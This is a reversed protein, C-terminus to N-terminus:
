DARRPEAGPLQDVWKELVIQLVTTVGEVIRVRDDASLESGGIGSLQRQLVSLSSRSWRVLDPNDRALRFYSDYEDRTSRVAGREPVVSGEPISLIALEPDIDRAEGAPSPMCPGVAPFAM